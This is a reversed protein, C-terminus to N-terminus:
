LISKKKKSFQIENIDTSQFCAHSVIFIWFFEGRLLDSLGFLALYINGYNALSLLLSPFKIECSMVRNSCVIPIRKFYIGVKSPWIWNWKQIRSLHRYLIRFSKSRSCAQTCDKTKHISREHGNQLGFAIIKCMECCLFTKIESLCNGFLDRKIWM